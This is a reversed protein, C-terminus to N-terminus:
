KCENFASRVTRGVALPEVQPLSHLKNILHNSTSILPLIFFPTITVINIFFCIIQYPIPFNKNSKCRLLVTSRGTTQERISHLLFTRAAYPVGRRFSSATPSLLHLYFFIVAAGSVAQGRTPSTPTPLPSFTTYSVVLRRTIPPSHGHSAALERLGDDHSPRRGSPKSGLSPPYFAQTTPHSM